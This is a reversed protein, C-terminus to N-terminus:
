LDIAAAFVDPRMASRRGADRPPNGVVFGRAGGPGTYDDGGLYTVKCVRQFIIRQLASGNIADKCWAVKVSSAFNSDSHGM